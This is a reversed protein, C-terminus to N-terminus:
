DIVMRWSGDHKPVLSVPSSWPSSSPRILGAQLLQQVTKRVVEQKLPSQRYPAQKIPVPDSLRIAHQVEPAAIPPASSAFASEKACQDLM